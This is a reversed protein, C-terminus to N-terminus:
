LNVEKIDDGKNESSSGSFDLSAAYFTSSSSSSGGGDRLLDEINSPLDSEKEVVKETVWFNVLDISSKFYLNYTVYVIDNLRDHELRNRRKQIFRILSVGIRKVDRFLMHRAFFIFQWTKYIHFLVVLCGGGNMLNFDKQLQFLKLDILVKKKDRYLHIEKITEVSDLNSVEWYLRVLDLLGRMVDPAEKYNKDFFFTPNLFYTAEYVYGLSPKNNADVIRM